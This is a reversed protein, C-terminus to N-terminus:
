SNLTYTLPEIIWLGGNVTDREEVNKLKQGQSQFRDLTAKDTMKLALEVAFQNIEQCNNQGKDDDEFSADVEGAHIHMYQRSKLKTQQESASVKFKELKVFDNLSDYINMTISVSEMHCPATSGEEECTSNLGPHHYPKISSTRHFNDFGKFTVDPHKFESTHGMIDHVYKTVYPSGKLCTPVDPNMTESAYCPPKIQYYGELDMADIIPKVMDM